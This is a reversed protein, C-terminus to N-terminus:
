KSNRRAEKAEREENVMQEYVNRKPEHFSSPADASTDAIRSVLKSGVRDMFRTLARQAAGKALRSGIAM